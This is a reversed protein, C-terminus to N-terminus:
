VAPSYPTRCPSGNRLSRQVCWGPISHESPSTVRLQGGSKPGTAPATTPAPAPAITAAPAPAAAATPAPAAAPAPEDSTCAALALIVIGSLILGVLAKM